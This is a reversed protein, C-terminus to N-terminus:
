PNQLETTTSTLCKYQLNPPVTLLHAEVCKPVVELSCLKDLDDESASVSPGVGRM